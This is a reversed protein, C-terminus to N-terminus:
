FNYAASFSFIRGFNTSWVKRDKDANYGDLNDKNGYVIQNLTENGTRENTIGNQYFVQDQALINQINLKLELKKKLM